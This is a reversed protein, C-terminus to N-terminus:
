LLARLISMEKNLFRLRTVGDATVDRAIPAAGPLVFRGFKPHIRSRHIGTEGLGAAEAVRKHSVIWGRQPFNEM